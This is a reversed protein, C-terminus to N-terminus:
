SARNQALRGATPSTHISRRRSVLSPEEGSHHCTIFFCSWQIEGVFKACRLIELRPPPAVEHGASQGLSGTKTNCFARFWCPQALRLRARLSSRYERAQPSVLSLM